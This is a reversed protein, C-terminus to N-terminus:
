RHPAFPLIQRAIEKEEDTPIAFVKIKSTKASVTIANANNKGSDLKIGFHELYNCIEKRIYGSNEGIGGTFTIADLGGLSASYAAIQQAARYTFIDIALQSRKNTKRTKLIDRMDSGVGSVGKFGSEFNLLRDIQETTMKEALKLPIAPDISGCRTGMPIGELPTFGMSTDISKGNLVATISCGNGLHCTVLKSRKKKLLKITEKAVYSHSTGHFGYRRIRNKQYLAYPLAYIYAKSPLSQHFATDFVAIQKAKPLLKACAKIGELNPPNHLPALKCLRTIEKQVAATIPVPKQYKEGGHVVRHGVLSIEDASKIIKQGLLAALSQKVSAYHNKTQGKQGIRQINGEALSKLSGDFLEYKLSSSGANIVLIKM